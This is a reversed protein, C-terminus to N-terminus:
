AISLSDRSSKNSGGIFCNNISLNFFRSFSLALWGCGSSFGFPSYHSSFWVICWFRVLWSCRSSIYLPSFSRWRKLVPHRAYLRIVGTLCSLRATHALSLLVNHVFLHLTTALGTTLEGCPILNPQSGRRLQGSSIPSCWPVCSVYLGYLDYTILGKHILGLPSPVYEGM